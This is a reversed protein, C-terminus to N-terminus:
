THIHAYVCVPMYTCTYVHMCEPRCVGPLINRNLENFDMVMRSMVYSAKREAAEALTALEVHFSSQDTGTLIQRSGLTLATESRIQESKHPRGQHIDHRHLGARCLLLYDM